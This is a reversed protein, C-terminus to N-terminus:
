FPLSFKPSLTVNKKQPKYKPLEKVAKEISEKHSQRTEDSLSGKKWLEDNHWAGEFILEGDDFFLSGLGAKRMTWNNDFCMEGVYIQGNTDYQISNGNKVYVYIDGDNKTMVVTDGSQVFRDGKMNIVWTKIYKRYIGIGERNTYANKYFKDWFIYEGDNDGQNDTVLSVVSIILKDLGVYVITDFNRNGMDCFAYLVSGSEWYGYKDSHGSQMKYFFMLSNNNNDIDREIVQNSIMLRYITNNTTNRELYYCEPDKQWLRFNETNGLSSGYWGSSKEIVSLGYHFPEGDKWNGTYHRGDMLDMNEVVRVSKDLMTPANKNYEAKAIESAGSILNWKKFVGVSTGKEDVLAGFGEPESDKLYGSYQRSVRDYSNKVYSFFGLGNLEANNDLSGVLHTGVGYRDDHNSANPKIRYAEGFAYAKGEVFASSFSSGDPKTIKFIGHPLGEKNVWGKYTDGNITKTVFFIEGKEILEAMSCFTDYEKIKSHEVNTKSSHLFSKFAPLEAMIEEIENRAQKAMEADYLEEAKNDIKWIFNEYFIKADSILKQQFGLQQKIKKVGDRGEYYVVSDCVYCIIGHFVISFDGLEARDRSYDRSYYPYYSCFRQYIEWEIESIDIPNKEHMALYRQRLESTLMERVEQKAKEISYEQAFCLQPLLFIFLIVMRIIVSSSKTKNRWFGKKM